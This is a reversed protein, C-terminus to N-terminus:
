EILIADTSTSSTEPKLKTNVQINSSAIEYNAALYFAMTQKRFFIANTYVVCQWAVRADFSCGIVENLFGLSTKVIGDMIRPLLHFTNQSLCYQTLGTELFPHTVARSKRWM